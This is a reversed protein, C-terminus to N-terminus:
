NQDATKTCIGRGLFLRCCGALLCRFETRYVIAREPVRAVQNPPSLSTAWCGAWVTFFHTVYRVRTRFSPVICAAAAPPAAPEAETSSTSKLVVVERSSVSGQARTGRAGQYQRANPLMLPM